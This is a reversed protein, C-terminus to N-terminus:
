RGRPPGPEAPRKAEVVITEFCNMEEDGVDRGHSEIGRLAGDGSEGPVCRTVSVFGAKELSYRLSSFDYLFKHGYNHFANNIVFVEDPGGSAPLFNKAIWRLYRLQTETKHPAYLGVLAELDPTAVRLMGGPRLIRRCEELMRAGHDFTLHEILHETFVYDFTCSDFPLPYKADVYVHGPVCPNFDTNLWGELLNRGAGLQLKRM